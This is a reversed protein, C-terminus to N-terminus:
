SNKLKNLFAHYFFKIGKYRLMYFSVTILRIIESKSPIESYNMKQMYEKLFPKLNHYDELINENIQDFKLEKALEYLQRKYRSSIQKKHFIIHYLLTFFHDEINPIYFRNKHLIRRKLVDKVWKSDYFIDDPYQLHFKIIKNKIKIEVSNFNTNDEDINHDILYAINSEIAIMDIDKFLIKTPLDHFNRLVAYEFTNNLATFLEELSSWGDYGILNSELKKFVGDWELPLESKLSDVNKGLLLFADHNTEKDSLSGHVAYENKIWTRYSMKSDYIKKNILLHQTITKEERFQPNNDQVLVLLFPGAGTKEYKRKATFISGYFRKLNNIQHEKSWYVEFIERITFKNKIDNLIEKEKYRSKEWIIFLYLGSENSHNL